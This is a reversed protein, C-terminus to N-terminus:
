ENEESIENLSIFVGFTINPDDKKRWVTYGNASRGLVFTAASSSSTFEQDEKLELFKGDEIPFLVGEEKLRKRKQLLLGYKRELHDSEELFLKSGKLVVYGIDSKYMIARTERENCIFLSASDDEKVEIKQKFISIGLHELIIMIRNFFEDLLDKDSLNLKGNYTGMRNIIHFRKSNIAEQIVKAEIAKRLSEGLGAGGLKGRQSFFFIESCFEKTKEYNFDETSNKSLHEEVRKGRFYQSMRRKFDGTEGIYCIGDYKSGMDEGLLIYIGDVDM